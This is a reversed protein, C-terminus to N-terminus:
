PQMLRRFSRHLQVHQSKGTKRGLLKLFGHASTHVIDGLPHMRALHYVASCVDLDEQNMQEGKFRIIVGQVAALNEDNLFRRDKGQIAAFLAARLVPNPMGRVPEPWLPLQIVEATFQVKEAKPQQQPQVSFVVKGDPAFQRWAESIFIEYNNRIWDGYFNTPCVLRLTLTNNEGQEVIGTVPEFWRQWVTADRATLYQKLESRIELWTLPQRQERKAVNM